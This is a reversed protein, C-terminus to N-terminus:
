MMDTCTNPWYQALRHPRCACRAHVLSAAHAPVKDIIRDFEFPSDWPKIDQARCETRHAVLGPETFPVIPKDRWRCTTGVKGCDLYFRAVPVGALPHM